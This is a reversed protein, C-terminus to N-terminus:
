RERGELSDTELISASPLLPFAIEARVRGDTISLEGEGQLEYPLRGEILDTGFGRRGHQLASGAPENWVLVLWERDERLQTEWLIDLQGDAGLAGYKISNTALEHVVMTLIEAAKASLRTDPGQINVREEEVIHSLEDRILNELDLRAGAARTLLVQTRAMADIRGTLHAVFDEVTDHTGVSQRVISRLMALLNRVRHQLERLLMAQHERLEMIDQVDTSTGLWEIIREGDKVPTARTQFWRYHGSANHCLRWDGELLSGTRAESWAAHARSRDDPHVADLWGSGTSSDVSQGTFDCWQPSSWTWEGEPDARWVLQPMGEVLMRFREESAELEQERRLRDTQDQAIGAIRIVEGDPGRIPFGVDFIHRVGGDPRVIRYEVSVNEGALARPMAAIAEERDEPHLFESWRSVDDRVIEPNIGWIDGFAPSLYEFRPAAPDFMWIVDESAKGVPRRSADSLAAVLVGVVNGDEDRLPSFSFDGCAKRVAADDANKAPHNTVRATEGAFAKALPEDLTEETGNWVDRFPEGLNEGERTPRSQWAENYITTLEDGWAIAMPLPHAVILNVAIRLAPPWNEIAGVPTAAWEIERIRRAGLASDALWPARDTM